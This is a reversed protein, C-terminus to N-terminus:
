EKYFVNEASICSLDENADVQESTKSIFLM